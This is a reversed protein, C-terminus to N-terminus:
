VNGLMSKLDDVGIVQTGYSAAKKAKESNSSKDLAVLYTLGRSVGSKMTGGAQEVADQLGSDRFGTFCFSQGMFAGTADKIQIGNALLKGILGARAVFGTVFAEAKTQGVGPIGAVETIRAKLMKSLTNYGADVITKAMTRGILPIGLSGVLVHLPMTKKANLNNIAKDATGGVRRGGIELDAVAVPDLTYLDAMDEVMSSEVLAEILADGVHLVGIKEVWRSIAGTVQAPCEDGKCVLYEGDMVLATHCEPCQTPAPLAQVAPVLPRSILSEVFPIVDNRRSVLIQDGVCLCTSASMLTQNIGSDTIIRQINGVNHLSANTVNAGALNVVDFEAVPTVRGSKGVQWRINRLTTPKEEHPFKYARAGKPRDNHQGHAERQATDNIEVVLGDIDYDLSARTRAIYQQYTDEVMPIGQVTTWRPVTFGMNNLAVMEVSRSSMPMGDPMLNYAMFTLHACKEHGTQRKSTGSATNRPNSEGKFYAAFDSKLCVIEGRIFVLNPTAMGNSLTAPLMKVAGKFLLANRTIDQGKSGDGRTVAQVLRRNEYRLSLSAGDLKDSITLVTAAGLGCGTFWTSLDPLTQAKELSGMPVQHRVEPWAGNVPVAAGVKTFLAHGPDLRRLEDELLDYAADTMIPASNYYAVRAAEIRTALADIHAQTSM